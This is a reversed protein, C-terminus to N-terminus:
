WPSGALFGGDVYFTQGTTFGAAPSALYLCMGVLDDPQGPRKISQATSSGAAASSRWLPATLETEIFGPCLCNVQIGHEAWEVAM